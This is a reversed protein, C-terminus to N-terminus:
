ANPTFQAFDFIADVCQQPGNKQAWTAAGQYSLRAMTDFNKIGMQVAAAVSSADFTTFAVGAGGYDSVLTAAATNSPVIVPIGNAIADTVISSASYYLDPRHPCIILDSAQLLHVWIDRDAIREDLIIRADQAALRRMTAQPEPMESPIANHVLVRINDHRSLLTEVVEPLLHYGTNANQRGIVSITIPRKGVRSEPQGHAKVFRPLVGVEHELLAAYIESLRRDFTVFRIRHEKLEALKLASFRYLVARDDHRPDPIGFSLEDDDRRVVVGPDTPFEIVIPPRKKSVCDSMWSVVAMLQAPRDSSLYLFDDAGIKASAFERGTSSFYGTFVNLWGCEPDGDSFVHPNASFYRVAGLESKLRPSLHSNAIVTVDLERRRLEGVLARCASVHHGLEDRLAPDAYYFRM